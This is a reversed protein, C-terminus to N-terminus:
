RAAPASELSTEWERQFEPYSLALAVPLAEESPLGDGLAALLRMLGAEGRRALIFATASLSQAYARQADQELLVQFPGELSLLPLLKSTRATVVLAADARYPDGGELWQAIGEQLWTPCNGGTRAGVFSHALEHRLARVLAPTVSTLGRVPLRITGDNLGAAWAPTGGEQFAADTQMLITLAGEPNLGFRRVYEAYVASAAELVAGGLPENVGGDYRLRLQAGVPTLAMPPPPPLRSLPTATPSPLSPAAQAETPVAVVPGALVALADRKAKVRPDPRLLLSHAYAADAGLRDALLALADGLLEHSRANREELKLAQSAAQRAAHGNGLRSQAEALEQLGALSLPDRLIVRQLLRAAESADGQAILARARLVDPDSSPVPEARQDLTQVLSMPLGFIGGNKEYMAQKGQVWVREAEIIHGNKLVIRDAHAPLALLGALLASLRLRGPV